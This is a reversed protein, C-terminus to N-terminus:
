DCQYLMLNYVKMYDSNSAVRTSDGRLFALVKDVYNEQVFKEAEAFNAFEAM